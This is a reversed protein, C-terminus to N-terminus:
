CSASDALRVPLASSADATLPMMLTTEEFVSLLVFSAAAVAEACEVHGAVLGAGQDQLLGFLLRNSFSSGM